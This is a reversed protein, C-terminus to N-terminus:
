RTQSAARRDPPAGANVWYRFGGRPPKPPARDPYYSVVKVKDACITVSITAGLLCARGMGVSAVVGAVGRGQEHIVTRLWSNRPVYGLTRERVNEVRIAMEDYPNDPEHFFRVAENEYTEALADQYHSVGTLRLFYIEDM